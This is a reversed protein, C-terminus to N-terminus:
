KLDARDASQREVMWGPYEAPLRSVEDLQSLEESSLKLEVSGLNAELQEMSKAGIIVSTIGPQALTWALAVQAVSAKKSSAIEEMVDVCSFARERDIPPFDFDSRRSGTPGAQDRKFKGTLFGGALPSWPLVALNEELALPVVEREIDRGAISYYMQLSEFRNWGYKESISLAQMIRWAPLNCLGIYRVKGSGVLEDLARLTEEIPVLPDFGHIQYLDIYDLQLRKLSEEVQNFIHTRSLGTENPGEGMSGRVKTAFVIKSRDASTRKFAEGVIEETVGVHYVNATDIFNVGAEFSRSLHQATEEVGLTGIQKWFANKDSGYTMTGLCITSVRLGTKGLPRYEM